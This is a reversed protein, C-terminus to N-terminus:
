SANPPSSDSIPHPELECLLAGADVTDGAAVAVRVLRGAVTTRVENEMKMAEVIVVATDAGVENGEAVLVRVIRGPMPSRLTRGEDARRSGRGIDALAAQQATMVTVAHVQGDSAASRLEGSPAFSVLVHASTGAPRVIVRGEPGLVTELELDGVRVRGDAGLEVEHDRDDVRV